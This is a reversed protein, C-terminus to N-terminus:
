FKSQSLPTIGATERQEEPVDLTLPPPFSVLLRKSWSTGKSAEEWSETGEATIMVGTSPSPTWDHTQPLGRSDRDVSTSPALQGGVAWGCAARVGGCVSYLGGTVRIKHQTVKVLM